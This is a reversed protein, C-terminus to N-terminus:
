QTTEEIYDRLNELGLNNATSNWDIAFNCDKGSDDTAFIATGEGFGSPLYAWYTWIEGIRHVSKRSDLFAQKIRYKRGPVLYDQYTERIAGKAITM